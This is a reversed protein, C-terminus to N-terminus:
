RKNVVRNVFWVWGRLDGVLRSLEWYNPSLQGLVGGVSM